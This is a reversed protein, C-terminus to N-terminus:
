LLEWVWLDNINVTQRHYTNTISRYITICEYPMSMLKKHIILILQAGRYITICVQFANVNVTQQHYTNTTSVQIYYYECEYPTSMLEENIILIPQAWRYITISVCKYPTSMLQRDIIFILQAWRYITMSVYVWLANVNVTQRHYTNTTNVQIYYYECEYLTTILQKNIILILQAWRYINISVYVWLANVNVTQRHYTNTTSM